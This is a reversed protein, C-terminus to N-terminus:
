EGKIWQTMGAGATANPREEFGYKRYFAEKGKAAMMYVCASQGPRLEDKICSLARLLLLKGIGMSQYAPSVIVDMVVRLYGGDSIVRTLGIPQSADGVAVVLYATGLMGARAQTPEIEEWGVATRLRNYTEVDM